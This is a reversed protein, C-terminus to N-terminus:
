GADGPRPRAVLGAYDPHRGIYGAIFECEPVVRLGRARADDLVARAIASGVGRGSLAEPVETHVLVVRDADLRYEVFAVAGDIKMEYRHRAINDTLDAMVDEGEPKDALRKYLRARQLHGRFGAPIPDAERLATFRNCQGHDGFFNMTM